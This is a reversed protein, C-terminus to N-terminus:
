RTRVVDAVPLFGVGAWGAERNFLIIWYSWDMQSTPPLDVCVEATGQGTERVLQPVSRTHFQLHQSLMAGRSQQASLKTDAPGSSVSLVEVYTQLGRVVADPVIATMALKQTVNGKGAGCGPKGLLAVSDFLPVAPAVERWTPILRVGPQRKDLKLRPRELRVFPRTLDLVGRDPSYRLNLVQASDETWDIPPGAIRIIWGHISRDLVSKLCAALDTSCVSAEGGLYQALDWAQKLNRRPGEAQESIGDLWVIPWFDIGAQTFADLRGFAANPTQFPMKGGVVYQRDPHVWGFDQGIWLVRIPGGWNQLMRALGRFSQISPGYVAQGETWKLFEPRPSPPSAGHEGAASAPEPLFYEYQEGGKGFAFANHYETWEYSVVFLSVNRMRRLAPEMARTQDVLRLQGDRPISALDFVIATKLDSSDAARTVSRVGFEKNGVTARFDSAPPVPGVGTVPKNPLILFSTELIAEAQREAHIASTATLGACLLVSQLAKPMTLRFVCGQQIGNCQM